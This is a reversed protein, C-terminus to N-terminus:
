TEGRLRSAEIAPFAMTLAAWQSRGLRDELNTVPTRQHYGVGQLLWMALDPLVATSRNELIATAMRGSIQFCRSNKSELRLLHIPELPPRWGLVLVAGGAAYSDNPAYWQYGTPEKRKLAYLRYKPHKFGEKAITKSALSLGYFVIARSKYQQCWSAWCSPCSYSSVHTSYETRTWRQHAWEKCIKLPLEYDINLCQHHKIFLRIEWQSSNAM